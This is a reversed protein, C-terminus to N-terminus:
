TSTVSETYPGRAAEAVAMECAVANFHAIVIRKRAGGDRAIEAAVRTDDKGFRGAREREFHLVNRRDCRNRM